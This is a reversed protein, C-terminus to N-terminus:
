NGEAGDIPEVSIVATPRGLRDLAEKVKSKAEEASEARVYITWEEIETLDGGESALADDDSGSALLLDDFAAITSRLEMDGPGAHALVRFKAESLDM